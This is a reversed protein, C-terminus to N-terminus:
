RRHFARELDALTFRVRTPRAHPCTQDSVAERASELLARVESDALEDGAMVSARCAASHLMHEVLEGAGPSRGTREIDEIVDRVLGEVDVHELRAPLGHVALTREGFRALELGIRGLEEVHEEVLRAQAPSVEVLEPVLRRQVEVRGERVEASLREFTLREHLAHQDLVEFGDPLARVIYTSAIRLYPGTLDDPAATGDRAVPGTHRCGAVGYDGSAQSSRPEQLPAPTFYTPAPAAAAGERVEYGREWVSDQPLLLGHPQSGGARQERRQALDTLREGPTSMDTSRVADRLRSVLFAFMRREDRFRVEAKAPHVNVDVLAPDMSLALFAVPQRGEILFGRYAEKLVRALVRDRLPRGNLFWMQRATDRRAFRPPAVYGAIRTTGDQGAVEVLADSLDAGFTRRVRARLDMDPEVDFLRRGDHLAVFGVGPNALALRQVVDLARGLETATTRLFRRRAPTNFFLDRVEVCTGEPGGAERAAERRGGHDQVQAGLLAGRPRSLISCRAVSGISALAEGRFGLTAIHDLDAADTLKSTAHSEFALALDEGAMGVGDDSVRVLAVGGEELEVQVHRAGADLANEVLEKVVSAPREIVEGAAIQNRVLESLVAIRAGSGVASM